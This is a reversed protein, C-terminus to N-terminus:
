LSWVDDRRCFEAQIVLEVSGRKENFLSPPVSVMSAQLADVLSVRGSNAVGFLTVVM